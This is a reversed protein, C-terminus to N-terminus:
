EKTTTTTTTTSTNYIVINVMNSNGNITINEPVDETPENQISTKPNLVGFLDLGGGSWYDVLLLLTFGLSTATKPKNDVFSSTRQLIGVKPERQITVPTTSSDAVQYTVIEPTYELIERFDGFRKEFVIFANRETSDSTLFSSVYIRGDQPEQQIRKQKEPTLFSVFDEKNYGEPVEVLQEIYAGEQNYGKDIIYEGFLKSPIYLIWVLFFLLTIKKM